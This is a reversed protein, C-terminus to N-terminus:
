GSVMLVSDILIAKQTSKEQTILNPSKACDLDENNGNVVIDFLYAMDLWSLCLGPVVSM